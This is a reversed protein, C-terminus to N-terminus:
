AIEKRDSESMSFAIQEGAVNGYQAVRHGIGARTMRKNDARPHHQRIMQM